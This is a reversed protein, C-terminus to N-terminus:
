HNAFGQLDSLKFVQWGGGPGNQWAGWPVGAPGALRVALRGDHAQGTGDDERTRFIGSFKTGNVGAPDIVRAPGLGGGPTSEWMSCLSGDPSLGLIEERGDANVMELMDTERHTTPTPTPDPTSPPTPGPRGIELWHYLHDGPCGTANIDRHGGIYHTGYIANHEAIVTNIAALDAEPVDNVYSDGLWLVSHMTRGVGLDAGDIVGWGRGKFIRGGGVAWGYAFDNWGHHDMHYNQTQRMLAAYDTRAPDRVVGDGLHHVIIGDSSSLPTYPYKPPRAGWDTRSVFDM